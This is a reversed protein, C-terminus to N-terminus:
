DEVASFVIKKDETCFVHAWRLAGAACFGRAFGEAPLRDVFECLLDHAGGQPYYQEGGFVLYSM